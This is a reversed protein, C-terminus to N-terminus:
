SGRPGAASQLLRGPGALATVPSLARVEADVAKTLVPPLEPPSQLRSADLSKLVCCSEPPFLSNDTGVNLLALLNRRSPPDGSRPGPPAVAAPTLLLGWCPRGSARPVLVSSSLPGAPVTLAAVRSGGSGPSAASGGPLAMASASLLTASDGKSRSGTM